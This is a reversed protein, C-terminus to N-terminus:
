KKHKIKFKFIGVYLKGKLNSSLAFLIFTMASFNCIIIVTVINCNNIIDVWMTKVYIFAFM